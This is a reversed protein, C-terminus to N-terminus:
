RVEGACIRQVQGYSMNFEKSLARLTVGKARRERLLAVGQDSLRCQPHGEGRLKPRTDNSRDYGERGRDYMAKTNQAQTGLSLHAPNICRPNDCSHMVVYGRVAERPTHTALCYAKVHLGVKHGEWITSGYGRPNGKQTHEVCSM